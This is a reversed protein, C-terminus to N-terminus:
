GGVEEPQHRRRKVVPAVKRKPGNGKRPHGKAHRDAQPDQGAQEIGNKAGKAQPFIERLAKVLDYPVERPFALDVAQGETGAFRLWKGQPDYGTDSRKPKTIKWTGRINARQVASDPNLAKLGCWLNKGIPVGRITRAVIAGEPTLLKVESSGPDAFLLTFM